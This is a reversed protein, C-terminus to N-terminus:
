KGGTNIITENAEGPGFTMNGLCLIEPSIFMRTYPDVAIGRIDLPGGDTSQITKVWILNGDRDHKAVYNVGVVSTENREGPGFTARGGLDGAQYVLGHADTTVATGADTGIGNGAVAWDIDQAQIAGQLPLILAAILLIFRLSQNM